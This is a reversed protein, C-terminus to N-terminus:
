GARLGLAVSSGAWGGGVGGLGGVRGGGGAGPAAGFGVVLVSGLGGGARAGVVAVWGGFVPGRGGPVPTSPWRLRFGRRPARISRIRGACRMRRVAHPHATRVAGTRVRSARMTRRADWSAAVGLADCWAAYGPPAWESRGRGQRHATGARRHKSLVGCRRAVAAQRADREEVGRIGPARERQVAALRGLNEAMGGPPWLRPDPPRGYRRSRGATVWALPAALPVTVGRAGPLPVTQDDGV